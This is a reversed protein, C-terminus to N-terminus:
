HQYFAKMVYHFVITAPIIVRAVEACYALQFNHKRIEENSFRGMKDIEKVRRVFSSPITYFAISELLSDRKPREENMISSINPINLLNITISIMNKKDHKGKGFWFM